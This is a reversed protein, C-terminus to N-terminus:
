SAKNLYARWRKADGVTAVLGRKCIERITMCLLFPACEHLVECYMYGSHYGDLLQGASTYFGEARAFRGDLTRGHAIHNRLDYLDEVVDCLRYKPQGLGSLAPFVNASGGLFRKLRSAFEKSNGAMVLGDLATVWLLTRILTDSAQLGLKLLQLANLLRSINANIAQQVGSALSSLQNGDVMDRVSMKKVWRTPFMPALVVASSLELGTSKRRCLIVLGGTEHTGAPLVLQYALFANMISERAKRKADSEKAPVDRFDHQLWFRSSRLAEIQRGSFYHTWPDFQDAVGAAARKIWVDPRVQMEQGARWARLPIFITFDMVNRGM